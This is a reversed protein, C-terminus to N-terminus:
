YETILFQNNPTLVLGLVVFFYTGSLVFIRFDWQVDPDDTLIVLFGSGCHSFM